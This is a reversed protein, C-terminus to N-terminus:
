NGDKDNAHVLIDNPDQYVGGQRDFRFLGGAVTTQMDNEEMLAKVKGNEQPAVDIIMPDALGGQHIQVDVYNDWGVEESFKHDVQWSGGQGHMYMVPLDQRSTINVFYNSAMHFFPRTRATRSAHGLIVTGRMEYKEFKTEVCHAVWEMNMKMRSDWSTRSEEEPQTHLLHVGIFLVGEVYFAFLEPHEESREIKLPVFHESHWKETIFNPGYYKMFLDFSEERYPCDFWDSNGPIVFTPRPAKAMLYSTDQYHKEMCLTNSVKQTNGLHVGFTVNYPPSNKTYDRIGAMQDRLRKSHVETYQEPSLFDNALKTLLELLVNYRAKRWCPTDTMVYFTFGNWDSSAVAKPKRANFDQTGNTPKPNISKELKAMRAGRTPETKPKSRATHIGGGYM